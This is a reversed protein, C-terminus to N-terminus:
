LYLKLPRVLAKWVQFPMKHYKPNTLLIAGVTVWVITLPILGRRTPMVGFGMAQRYDRPAPDFEVSNKRRMAYDKTYSPGCLVGMAMGCLLGGTNCANSVTDMLYGMTFMGVLGQLIQRFSGRSSTGGMKAQQIWQLGWLACLGATPGLCLTMDWSSTATAVQMMNGAIIGFVYTSVYMPWGLGTELWSPQGRAMAYSTIWLHFLSAHLGGSTLYRFPQGSMSSVSSKAVSFGFSSVLPSFDIVSGGWISDLVMELVKIPRKVYSPYLRTMKLFTTLIQYMYMFWHFTLIGTRGQHQVLMESQRRKFNRKMWTSRRIDDGEWRRGRNSNNLILRPSSSSSSSTTSSSDLRRRAVVIKSSQFADISVNKDHYLVALLVILVVTKM